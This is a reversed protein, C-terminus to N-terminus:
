ANKLCPAQNTQVRPRGFSKSARAAEAAPCCISSGTSNTLQGTRPQTVCREDLPERYLNRSATHTDMLQRSLDGWLALVFATVLSAM